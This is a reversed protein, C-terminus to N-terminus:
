SRSATAKATSIKTKNTFGVPRKPSRSEDSSRAHTVRHVVGWGSTRDGVLVPALQHGVADDRRAREDENRQGVHGDREVVEIENGVAKSEAIERKIPQKEDDSHNNALFGDEFPHGSMGLTGTINDGTRNGANEGARAQAKKDDEDVIKFQTIRQDVPTWLRELLQRHAATNQTSHQEPQHNASHETGDTAGHM